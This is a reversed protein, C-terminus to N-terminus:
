KRNRHTRRRNRKRQTRRKRYTRRKRKRYGGVHQSRIDTILHVVESLAMIADNESRDLRPDRPNVALEAADVARIMHVLIDQHENHGNIIHQIMVRVEDIERHVDDFPVNDERLDELIPMIANEIDNLRTLIDNEPAAAM